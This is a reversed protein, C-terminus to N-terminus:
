QEGRKTWMKARDLFGPVERARVGFEESTARSSEPKGDYVWAAYAMARRMREEGPESRRRAEDAGYRRGLEVARARKPM